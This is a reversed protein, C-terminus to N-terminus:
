NVRSASVQELTFDIVRLDIRRHIEPDIDLHGDDEHRSCVPVLSVEGEIVYYITHAHAAMRVNSTQRIDSVPRRCRAQGDWAGCAGEELEGVFDALDDVELVELVKMDAVVLIIM